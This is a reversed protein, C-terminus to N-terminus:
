RRWRITFRGVQRAFPFKSELAALIEPELPPSHVVRRRLAIVNVGLSDFRELLHQHFLTDPVQYDFLAPTPNRLAALFYVEPADPGAYTVGSLAHTRLLQVAMPYDEADARAIRLGARPLELIATDDDAVPGLLGPLKMPAIYLAGFVLYVSTLGQLARKRVVPMERVTAVIALLLLPLSYAYYVPAAFPYQVLSCFAAVCGVLVSQSRARWGGNRKESRATFIALALVVVPTGGALSIWILHELMLGAKPVLMLAIVAIGLGDQLIAVRGAKGNFDIVVFTALAMPILGLPLAPSLSAGDMLRASRFVVDRVLDPLAHAAAFHGAFAAVPIAVGLIYPVAARAIRRSETRSLYGARYVRRGVIAVMACGPITFQYVDVWTGRSVGIAALATVAAILITGVALRLFVGSRRDDPTNTGADTEHYLLFLLGAAVFLLGTIKMLVSLGGAFGAAVLWRRKPSDIYKLLAALGGTALFLNYWSPMAAPYNPVSWFVAILAVAGAWLPSIMRAAAYYFIPVWVVFAAFLLYRIALLHVGFLKFAFANVYSLLGTYGEIFDRHPLEGAVVREASHALTGEDHPIWGRDFFYLMYGTSIALVAGLVLWHRGRGSTERGPENERVWTM